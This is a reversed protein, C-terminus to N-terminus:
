PKACTPASNNIAFLQREDDSFDRQLRACALAVIDQFDRRWVRLLGDEGGTLVSQGDKTFGVASVQGANGIFERLEQGTAADWLRATKDASGTLVFRGDPSFALALINGTHGSLQRVLQGTRANWLRATKDAEATLISRGDPSFAVAGADSTISIVQQGTAFDWLRTVHNPGTTVLYRGDPSFALDNVDGVIGGPWRQDRGTTALLITVNHYAQNVAAVSRGDPSFIARSIVSGLGPTFSWSTRGSPADWVSATGDAGSTLVTQGDPSWAVGLVAAGNGYLFKNVQGSLLDRTSVVPDSGSAVVERGDPSLALGTIWEMQDALVRPEATVHRDWLRIAGDQSGTMLAQGNPTFIASTVSSGNSVFRQVEQGTDLDWLQALGSSSGTLLTRGDPAIEVDYVRGSVAYLQLQAGTAVDWLRVTGDLSATALRQGNPSFAARTINAAHGTFTQVVQDTQPDMLLSTAGNAVLVYREDPTFTAYTAPNTAPVFITELSRGTQASYVFANSDLSSMVIKDGTPSFRAWTVAAQPGLLLRLQQGSRIDFLRATFAGLEVVLLQQGDPSFAVSLVSGVNIKLQQVEQGTAVEWIHVVGNQGGAALFRGDTSVDINNVSQGGVTWARRVFPRSLANLLASDAAPTYGTKLSQLALLAALDASGGNNLVNGAQAALRQQEARALNAQADARQVLAIVALASSAMLFVALGIALYRLQRAARSQAAARRREAEALAQATELDRQQRAQHQAAELETLERAAALFETELPNLDAAHAEAWELTQVLRPGRYLESPDREMEDWAQAAETLRRHLRLAERNESLWGRLTPWERILAEHAVEVVDDDLTILRADSLTKLVDATPGNPAGAAGAGAPLLESLAVRRLTDQTGEGLATLRLFVGRAIARAQPALAQFVTEATTAIAAQVRGAEAYSHLTLTRGRRHRWTELLAHSLLPLAGPADSVDRLIQDVLGPEFEWGGLAAPRAVAQRLEGASMPGIYAQQAALAERLGAYAACHPYFDARMAIVLSFPADTGPAAAALLNDIFAQREAEARCLTFLEEFQDVVLLLRSGALAADRAYYRQRAFLQLARPDRALTDLLATTAAPSEAARTLSAALAELPHATPTIIHIPDFRVAPHGAREPADPALRRLAPILGARVISSKGSGSAGVVALFAAQAAGGVPTTLRAVLRATLDERGFFLDAEAEAFYRLGQFPSVGPAPSEDDAEAQDAAAARAPEAPRGPTPAAAAPAVGPPPMWGPPAALLGLARARALAPRKGNVGLKGYIHQVHTKVSSLGLTLKEAIEPATLGQDLLALIERERRTLPEDLPEDPPTELNDAPGDM